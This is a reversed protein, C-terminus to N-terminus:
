QAPTHAAGTAGAAPRSAVVVLCSGRLAVVQYVRADEPEGPALEVDWAAGRYQARARREHWEPVTLTAGIDLNVDPNQAADVRKRRGFRSRRLIAVAVLAVLAAVAFQAPVPAGALRVLAAAIFGLAVMLLYFTGIMLELLILVGAGIWWFVGALVM